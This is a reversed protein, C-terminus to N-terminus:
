VGAGVLSWGTNGTGTQKRYTRTSDAAKSICICGQIASVATEPTAEGEFTCIGGPNGSIIPFITTIATDNQDAEVDQRHRQRSPHDAAHHGTAGHADAPYAASSLVTLRDVHLDDTSLINARGELVLVDSVRVHGVREAHSLGGISFAISTRGLSNDCVGHHICLHEMTGPDAGTPEMDIPSNKIGDIHFDSIEIRSAGRQFAIGSRAGDGIGAGHM